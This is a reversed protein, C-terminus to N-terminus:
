PIPAGRSRSGPLPYAEPESKVSIRSGSATGMAYGGMGIGEAQVSESLDKRGDSDRVEEARGGDGVVFDREEERADDVASEM